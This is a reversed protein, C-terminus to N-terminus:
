GKILYASKSQKPSLPHGSSRGVPEREFPRSWSHRGLADDGITSTKTTQQFVRLPETKFPRPEGAAGYTSPLLPFHSRTGYSDTDYSSRRGLLPGALETSGRLPTLICGMACATPLFHFSFSGWRPSLSAVVCVEYPRCSNERVSKLGLLVQISNKLLSSPRRCRRWSRSRAPGKRTWYM